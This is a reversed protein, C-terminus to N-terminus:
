APFHDHFAQLFQKLALTDYLVLRVLSVKSDPQQQFYQEIAQMFIQAALGTPFGFIGTSIAPFAISHLNLQDALALSGSISDALKQEEDGSGWIPGVAHIITRAPLNGATTWAPHAHEV